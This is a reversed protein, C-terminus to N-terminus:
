KLCQAFGPLLGDIVDVMHQLTEILPQGGIVQRESLAVDFRFDMKEHVEHNICDGFLEDGVELPFLRDAPMIYLPPIVTDKAWDPANKRFVSQMMPGINVSRYASGVTLLLRHKDINNLKHIRWVTDNGGKYPKTADIADIADQRAGKVKRNRLDPYKAADDAIPYEVEWPKPPEMGLGVSVARYAIYDLASRLDQLVDGAIAAVLLPVPKVEAVYYIRQRTSTNDKTKVVYPRTDFFHKVALQLDRSHEKAREVKTRSGLLPDPHTM